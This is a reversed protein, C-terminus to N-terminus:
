AKKRRGSKKEREEEEVEEDVNEIVFDEDNNVEPNIVVKKIEKKEEEEEVNEFEIVNEKEDEDEDKEKIITNKDEFFIGEGNAKKNEKKPEKRVAKSGDSSRSMIEIEDLDYVENELNEEEVEEKSKKKPEELDFVKFDLNGRGQGEQQADLDVNLGELVFEVEPEVEDLPAVGSIMRLLDIPLEHGASVTGFGKMMNLTLGGIGAPQAEDEHELVEEAEEQQEGNQGKKKKEKKEDESYERGVVTGMNEFILDKTDFPKSQNEEPLLEKASVDAYQVIDRVFSNANRELLNYSLDGYSMVMQLVDDLKSYTSRYAKSMDSALGETSQLAGVYDGRPNLGKAVIQAISDKMAFGLPLHYRMYKNSETDLASYRFVVYSYGFVPVYKTLEQGSDLDRQKAEYMSVYDTLEKTNSVSVHIEIVPREVDRPFEPDKAAAAKRDPGDAIAFTFPAQDKYLRFRLLEEPTNEDEPAYDLLMAPVEEKKEEPKNEEAANEQQGEAANVQLGNQQENGANQQANGANEQVNKANEQANGLKEQGNPAKAQEEEAKDRAEKEKDRGEDKEKIDVKAGKSVLSSKLRGLWGFTEYQKREGADIDIVLAQDVLDQKPKPKEAEKKKGAKNEKEDKPVLGAGIQVFQGAEKESLFEFAEEEEEENNKGPDNSVDVTMSYYEKEPIGNIYVTEEIDLEMDQMFDPLKEIDLADAM